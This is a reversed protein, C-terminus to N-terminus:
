RNFPVVKLEYGNNLSPHINVALSALNAKHFRVANNLKVKSKCDKVIKTYDSGLLQVGNQYTEIYYNM